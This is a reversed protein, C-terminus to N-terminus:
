SWDDPLSCVLEAVQEATQASAILQSAREDALAQELSAKEKKLTELEQALAPDVPADAAAAQQSNAKVEELEKTLQELNGKLQLLEADRSAWGRKAKENNEKGLDM